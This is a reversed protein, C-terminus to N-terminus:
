HGYWVGWDLPPSLVPYPVSVINITKINKKYHRQLSPPASIISAKEEEEGAKGLLELRYLWSPRPLGVNRWLIGCNLSSVIELMGAPMM